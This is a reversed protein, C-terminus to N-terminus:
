SFDATGTLTTKGQCSFLNIQFKPTRIYKRIGFVATGFVISFCSTRDVFAQVELDDEFVESDGIWSRAPLRTLSLNAPGIESQHDL